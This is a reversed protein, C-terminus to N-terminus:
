LIGSISQALDALLIPEADKFQLNVREATSLIRTQYRKWHSNKDQTQTNVGSTGQQLATESHESVLSKTRESIRLDVIVSYIQDKVLADAVTSVVSGVIGGAALAAIGPSRTAAAATLVGVASGYGASLADFATEPSAKGVQLVNAQLLYHAKDLSRTVKYGKEKLLSTLRPSIDFNRQDSTNKVQLYVIHQSNPVPDLFITASMKTQTELNRKEVATQLSQCGGLSIAIIILLSQYLLKM